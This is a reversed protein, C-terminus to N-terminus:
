TSQILLAAFFIESRKRGAVVVDKVSWLGYRADFDHHAVLPPEYKKMLVKIQGFIEALAGSDPRRKSPPIM